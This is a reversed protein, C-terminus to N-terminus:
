CPCSKWWVVAPVPRFRWAWWLRATRAPSLAETTGPTNMLRVSVHDGAALAGTETAGVPIDSEGCVSVGTSTLKVLCDQPIAAAALFTKRSNEHYSM